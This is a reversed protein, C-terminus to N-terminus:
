HPHQFVFLVELIQSMAHSKLIAIFFLKYNSSTCARCNSIRSEFMEELATTYLGILGLTRKQYYITQLVRNVIKIHFKYINYIYLKLFVCMIEFIWCLGFFWLGTIFYVFNHCSRSCSISFFLSVKSERPSPFM